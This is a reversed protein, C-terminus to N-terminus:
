SPHCLVEAESYSWREGWLDAGCTSRCASINRRGIRGYIRRPTPARRMERLLGKEQPWLPHHYFNIIQVPGVGEPIRSVLGPQDHPDGIVLKPPRNTM